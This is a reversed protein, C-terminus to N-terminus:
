AADVHTRNFKNQYFALSRRRRWWRRAQKGTLSFTKGLGDTITVQALINKKLALWLPHMWNKELGQLIQQCHAADSYLTADHVDTFIVLHEGSKDALKRWDEFSSPTNKPLGGALRTLAMSIPENSWVQSWSLTTSRPLRGGGWFWLSNIPLQGRQEREVNVTSAHLMIQIENLITHWPKADVGQPLFAHIDHAIVQSLAATIIKPPRVTKLYWRNPCPAKLMWGDASFVEMIEAVLRNAEEQSIDLMQGDVLILRDRDLSLHVPDARLWWDNDIISMDLTRTVAAIPLDADQEQQIGFLAFLGAEYSASSALEQSEARALLAEFGPAAPANDLGSHALSFIGPLYLTLHPRSPSSANDISNM